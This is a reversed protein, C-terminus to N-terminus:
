ALLAAARGLRAISREQGLVVMMVKVDPGRTQGSLSFRLLPMLAGAKVGESAAVKTVADGLGAESWDTTAQLGSQLAALLKPAQANAKLKTMVEDEFAFDETFFFHVWSPFESALSVKEKVSNLTHAIYADDSGPTIGAKELWPRAYAVLDADDLLRLHQQNVWTCKTMDFRANSHHVDSIDFLEVAQQASFTEGELKPTWGLLCLYNFVAQPLFGAQIYSDISAGDDRKSMKSGNPNLLLPIHGYRPPTHGLARFLDIHKWTNSIHDEGRIVHTMGMEIDDVVNVFHFIYGGDPRRITMDPEETPAFRIDGCVVDPITIAERSFKFRAAGNAEFYVRGAEELKKFYADYISRRQSQFYPGYDGGKQPGEDWDIGLWSLGEFIANMAAETNRAEDTDEIRLIFTGGSKRALLWNFLATRAGGVHLYGTPSPAFRVRISM